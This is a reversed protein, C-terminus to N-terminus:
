FSVDHGVRGDQRIGAGVLCYTTGVEESWDEFVRYVDAEETYLEEQELRQSVARGNQYRVASNWSQRDSIWYRLLTTSSPGPVPIQSQQDMKHQISKYFRLGSIDALSCDPDESETKLQFINFTRVAHWFVLFRWYHKLSAFNLPKSRFFTM